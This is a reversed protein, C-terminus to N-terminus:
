EKEGCVTYLVARGRNGAPKIAGVHKLVNIAYGTRKANIHACKAFDKASFEKPLGEPLVSIYDDKGSIEFTEIIKEPIRDYRSSGKKKDTSWGDLNRYETLELYVIKIKLNPHTLLNKIKYLEYYVDNISAKKPSKRRETIKGSEGDVWSLWKIHAVPHVLTVKHDLMFFELKKRLANFSRTQIETIETGDAIDAVFKGIKIEHKSEDPETYKKMVAHLTKEGYTGIGNKTDRNELVYDIAYKFSNNEPM